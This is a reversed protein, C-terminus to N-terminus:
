IHLKLANVNSCGAEFRVGREGRWAEFIVRPCKEYELPDDNNPTGDGDGSWPCELFSRFQFRLRKLPLSSFEESLIEFIGKWLRRIIARRPFSLFCAHMSMEAVQSSRTFPLFLLADDGEESFSIFRQAWFNKAVDTGLVTKGLLSRFM